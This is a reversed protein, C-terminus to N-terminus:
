GDNVGLQQPQQAEHPHDADPYVRLRKMREAKLKNDSIMGEVAHKIVQEPRQQLQQELTRSKLGGAHQSHRYYRKQSLKKGTTRVHAANIVVVSDGNDVHPTYTPKHKGTLYWAIETALRGLTLGTADVIYWQRSIDAPKQNYTKM